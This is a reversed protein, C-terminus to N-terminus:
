RPPAPSPEIEEAVALSRLAGAEDKAQRREAPVYFAARVRLAALIRRAALRAEPDADSEAQRKLDPIGLDRVIRAPPVDPAALRRELLALREELDRGDRERRRALKRSRKQLDKPDGLSAVFSRTAALADDGVLGDFDRLLAGARRFAELVDGGDGAARARALDASLIAALHDPDRPAAGTREALLELWDLAEAAVEEPPWRHGGAFVALRNPVGLADLTGALAMVEYFNFDADGVAAFVPVKRGKEPPSEAPFGAGALLVAFPPQRLASGLFAATRAGGSFGGVVLRADDLPVRARLDDLTAVFARLTPEIPADSRSDNSSAVVVGLRGAAAVFPGAAAAGRGRADLLVLAPWGRAPRAGTPVFLAYSLDPQARCSVHPVLAGPTPFDGAALVAPLVASLVAPVARALAGAQRRATM